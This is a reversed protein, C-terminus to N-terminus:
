VRSMLWWRRGGRVSLRALVYPGYRFPRYPIPKTKEIDWNPYPEPTPRQFSSPIWEAWWWWYVEASMMVRESSTSRNYRVAQSGSLNKSRSMEQATSNRHVRRRAVEELYSSFAMYFWPPSQSEWSSSKRSLFVTFPEIFPLKCLWKKKKKERREQVEKKKKRRWCNLSCISVFFCRNFISM